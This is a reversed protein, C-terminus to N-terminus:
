LTGLEDRGREARLQQLTCVFAVPHPETALDAVNVGDATFISLAEQLSLARHLLLVQPGTRLM